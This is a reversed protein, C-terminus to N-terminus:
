CAFWLIIMDKKEALILSPKKKQLRFNQGKPNFIEKHNECPISFAKPFRKMIEKTRDHESISNEYYITDIM